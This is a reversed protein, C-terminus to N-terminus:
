GKDQMEGSLQKRRVFEIMLPFPSCPTRRSFAVPVGLSVIGEEKTEHLIEREMDFHPCLSRVGHPNRALPRVSFWALNYSRRGSPTKIQIFGRLGIRHSAGM